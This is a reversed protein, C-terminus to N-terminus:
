LNQPTLLAMCPRAGPSLELSPGARLVSGTWLAAFQDLTGLVDYGFGPGRYHMPIVVAPSLRDTLVKAQSADITYYGGIPILLADLGRLRAEQEETPMCGLDGLHAVRCQGDSLIHVTNAGRLAGERDDHWTPITEVTFPSAMGRRLTVCDAASHDDHGHSCLVLDATERVPRWGPVKGDRYPDLIIRYGQSEIRFCSHGLWTITM